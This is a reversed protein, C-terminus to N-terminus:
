YEYFLGYQQGNVLTKVQYLFTSFSISLPRLSIRHELHEDCYAQKFHSIAAAADRQRKFPAKRRKRLTLLLFVFPDIRLFVKAEHMSVYFSLQAVGQLFSAQISFKYFIKSM